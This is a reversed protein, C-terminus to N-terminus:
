FDEIAYLFHMMATVFPKTADQFEAGITFMGQERKVNRVCAMAGSENAVGPFKLYLRLIDGERLANMNGKKDKYKFRCGKKSIDFVVTKFEVNKAEIRGPIVVDNRKASRLERKQVVKPFEIAIARIPNEISEIVTTQFAFVSGEFLYKIVMRNTPFLKTKVSKYRKPFTILMFEDQLMGIFICSVTFDVGEIELYCTTGIDIYIGESKDLELLGELEEM